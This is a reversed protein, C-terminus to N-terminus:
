GVLVDDHENSSASSWMTTTRTSFRRSNINIFASPITDVFMPMYCYKIGKLQFFSIYVLWKTTKKGTLNMAILVNLQRGLRHHRVLGIIHYHRIRYRTHHFRHDQLRSKQVMARRYLHFSGGSLVACVMGLFSTICLLLLIKM